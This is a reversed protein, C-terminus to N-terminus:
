RARPPTEYVQGLPISLSIGARVGAPIVIAVMGQVDMRLALRPSLTKQVGFGILGIVPPFIRIHSQPQCGGPFCPYSFFEDRYIVGEGGFTLFPEFGLRRGRDIRRTVQAGYFAVVEESLNGNEAGWYPGGFVDLSLREGIPIAITARIGGGFSLWSAVGTGGVSLEIPRHPAAATGVGASTQASAPAALLAVLGIAWLNTTAFTTVPRM